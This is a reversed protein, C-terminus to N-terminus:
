KPKKARKVMKKMLKRQKHIAALRDEPATRCELLIWGKYDMGVLLNFLEQYPYEGVNFERVHVTDGFRDKVLNFNYALGKGNTDP